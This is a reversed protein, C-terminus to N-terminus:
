RENLIQRARAIDDNMAAILDDISDFKLEPRIWDVFEVGIAEGYLDGSYDLLHTEVTRHADTDFTPRVGVSTVSPHREGGHHTVTAYIGLAPVAIREPVHLNATPVGLEQGRADGHIVRGEIIFPHGLLRTAGAVNGRGLADRIRTSSVVEGDLECVLEVAHVSFDYKEGMTELLAVDGSRDRGFRWDTGVSVRAAGLREVLIEEVFTGPPLDRIEGFSLVGAVDVGIEEFLELRQLVSTLLAPAREPAVLELPHPDFTLAVAALDEDRGTEVVVELIERHGLHVGDFVGIAVATRRRLPEWALPDGDLVKM